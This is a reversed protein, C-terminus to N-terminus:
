SHCGKDVHYYKGNVVKTKANKEGCVPCKVSTFECDKLGNSDSSESDSAGLGGPQNPSNTVGGPCSRSSEVLMASRAALSAQEYDGHEYLYRGHEIRFAAPGGFVTSDVTRDVIAQEIMEEASIKGLRASAQEPSSIDKAENLLRELAAGVRPEFKAEREACKRRYVRYDQRAEAKGFFTGGALDDLTKVIDIVGDPMLSKHILLPKDLIETASKGHVDVGLDAYFTEVIESDHRESHSTKKGAVFASELEYEGNKLTTAQIAMSMTNTFFGEDDMAEESMDDAARSVVVFYYDDLQGARDAEELRFKNRTEAEYRRRMQSRRSGYRLSNLHIADTTQGHQKFNGQSDKELSRKIVHGSKLTREVIDAAINSRVMSRAESDGEAALKVADYITYEQGAPGAEVSEGVAVSGIFLQAEAASVVESSRSTLDIVLPDGPLVSKEENPLRPKELTEM